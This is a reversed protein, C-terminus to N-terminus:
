LYNWFPKLGAFLTPIHYSSFAPRINKVIALAHFCGFLRFTWQFVFPYLHPVYICHLVVWGNWLLCVSPWSACSFHEVNGIILSICILVVILYWRNSTLIAVMLFAAFLLHQLPHLFTVGVTNTPIYTPADVISFPISTVWFVLFLIVMYALM